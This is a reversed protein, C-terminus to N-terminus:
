RGDSRTPGASGFAAPILERAVRELDVRRPDLLAEAEDQEIEHATRLLAVALRLFADRCGESVDRSAALVEDWLRRVELAYHTETAVEIRVRPRGFLNTERRTMPRLRIGPLALGWTNGDALEVEVAPVDEDRTEEPRPPPM